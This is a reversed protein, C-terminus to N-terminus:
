RKTTLKLHMSITLTTQDSSKLVAITTLNPISQANSLISKHWIWFQYHRHLYEQIQGRYLPLMYSSHFHFKCQLDKYYCLHTTVNTSKSSCEMYLAMTWIACAAPLSGSIKSVHYQHSLNSSRNFNFETMWKITVTRVWSASSLEHLSMKCDTHRCNAGSIPQKKNPVRTHNPNFRSISTDLLLSNHSHPLRNGCSNNAMELLAAVTHVSHQLVSSYM